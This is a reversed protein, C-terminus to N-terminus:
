FNGNKWQISSLVYTKINKKSGNNSYKIKLQINVLYITYVDREFRFMQNM